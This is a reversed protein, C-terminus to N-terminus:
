WPPRHCEGPDRRDDRHGFALAQGHHQALLVGVGGPQPVVVHGASQYEPHVGSQVRDAQGGGDGVFEGPGHHAAVHHGPEVVVVEEHRVLHRVTGHSQEFPEGTSRRGASRLLM